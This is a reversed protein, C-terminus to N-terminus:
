KGTSDVVTLQVGAVPGRAGNQEAQIRGHLDEDASAPAALVPILVLAGVLAALCAAFRRLLSGRARRAGAPRPRAQLQMIKPIYGQPTVRTDRVRPRKGSRLM